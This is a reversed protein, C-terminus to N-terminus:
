TVNHRGQDNGWMTICYGQSMWQQSQTIVRRHNYSWLNHIILITIVNQYSLGNTTIRWCNNFGSQCGQVNKHRCTSSICLCKTGQHSYETITNNNYRNNITISLLSSFLCHDNYESVNNGMTNTNSVWCQDNDTFSLSCAMTIVICFAHSGFSVRSSFQM